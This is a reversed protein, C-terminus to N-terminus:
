ISEEQPILKLKEIPILIPILKEKIVQSEEEM